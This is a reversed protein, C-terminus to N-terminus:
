GKLSCALYYWNAVELFGLGKYLNMAVENDRWLGIEVIGVRRRRFDQLAALLLARGYGRRQYAESVALPEIQGRGDPLQEYWVVAVPRGDRAVFLLDEARILAQEVE